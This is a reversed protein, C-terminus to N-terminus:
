RVARLTKRGDRLETLPDSQVVPHRARVAELGARLEKVAAPLAMRDGTSMNQRDITRSLAVLAAGEPSGTEDLDRLLKRTARETAGTARREAM